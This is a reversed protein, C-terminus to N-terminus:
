SRFSKTPPQMMREGAFAPTWTQPQDPSGGERSFLSAMITM